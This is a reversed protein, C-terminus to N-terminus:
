RRPTVAPADITTDPQRPAGPRPQFVRWLTMRANGASTLQLSGDSVASVGDTTRLAALVQAAMQTSAPDPCAPSPAPAIGQLALGPGSTQFGGAFSACGVTGEVSAGARKLKPQVPLPQGDLETITWTGGSPLLLNPDGQAAIPTFSQGACGALALLCLAPALARM